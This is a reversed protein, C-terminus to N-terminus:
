PQMLLSPHHIHTNVCGTWGAGTDVHQLPMCQPFPFCSSAKVAEEAGGLPIPRTLIAEIFHMRLPWTSLQYQAAVATAQQLRPVAHAMDGGEVAKSVAQM